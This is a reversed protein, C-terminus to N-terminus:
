FRGGGYVRGSRTTRRGADRGAPGVSSRGRTGRARQGDATSRVRAAAASPVRTSPLPPSPVVPPPSASWAAATSGPSSDLARRTGAV